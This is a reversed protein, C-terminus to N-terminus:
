ISTLNRFGKSWVTKILNQYISGTRSDAEDSALWVDLVILFLCIKVLKLFDLQGNQVANALTKFFTTYYGITGAGNHALFVLIDNGLEQLTMWIKFLYGQRMIAAIDNLITTDENCRFLVQRITKEDTM